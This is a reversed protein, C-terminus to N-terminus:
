EFRFTENNITIETGVSLAYDSRWFVRPSRQYDSRLNTANLAVSNGNDAYNSLVGSFLEFTEFAGNGLDYIQWIDLAQEALADFHNNLLVSWKYDINEINIRRQKQDGSQEFFESDWVSGFVNIGGITSLRIVPDFAVRLLYGPANNSQYIESM